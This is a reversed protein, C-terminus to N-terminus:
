FHFFLKKPGIADMVRDSFKCYTFSRDLPESNKAIEPYLDELHPFFFVHIYIDVFTFEGKLPVAMLLIVIKKRSGKSLKILSHM